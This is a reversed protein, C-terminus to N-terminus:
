SAGSGSLKLTAASGAPVLLRARDPWPEQGNLLTCFPLTAAEDTKAAKNPRQAPPEAALPLGLLQGQDDRWELEWGPKPSCVKVGEVQPVLWRLYWPLVESRLTRAVKVTRRVLAMDLQDAPRVLEFRGSFRATGKPLNSILEANGAQAEPVAPLAFRNEADLAIPIDRDELALALKPRPPLPQEPKRPLLQFDLKFLGEGHRQLALLVQNMRAYPMSAPDRVMAVEVPQLQAAAAGDAAAAAPSQALAPGSLLALALCAPLPSRTKSTTM